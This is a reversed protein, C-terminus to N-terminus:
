FLRLLQSLEGLGVQGGLRLTVGNPYVVEYGSINAGISSGTIRLPVFKREQIGLGSEECGEILSFWDEQSRRNRSM